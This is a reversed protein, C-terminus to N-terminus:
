LTDQVMGFVPLPISFEVGNNSGFKNRDCTVRHRREIIIESSSTKRGSTLAGLGAM